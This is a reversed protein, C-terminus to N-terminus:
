ATRVMNNEPNVIVGGENWGFVKRGLAERDYYNSDELVRQMYQGIHLLEPKTHGKEREKDLANPRFMIPWSQGWLEFEARTAPQFKAVQVVRRNPRCKNILEIPIDCIDREPCIIIELNNRDNGERRIRKVHDLNYTQLPIVEGFLKLLSSADKPDISAAIVNLMAEETTYSRAGLVEEV